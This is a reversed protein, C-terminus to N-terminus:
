IKDLQELVVSITFKKMMVVGIIKIERVDQDKKVNLREIVTHNKVSLDRVVINKKVFMVLDRWANFKETVFQDRLANFKETVFQDRFVNLKKAVIQDKGVGLKKTVLPNNGVIMSVHDLKVTGIRVPM